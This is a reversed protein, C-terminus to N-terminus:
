GAKCALPWPTRLLSGVTENSPTLGAFVLIGGEKRFFAGACNGIMGVGLLINALIFFYVIESTSHM